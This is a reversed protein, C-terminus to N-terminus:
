RSQAQVALDGSDPFSPQPNHAQVQLLCVSLLDAGEGGCLFSIHSFAVPQEFSELHLPVAQWDGPKQSM